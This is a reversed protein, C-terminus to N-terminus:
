ALVPETGLFSEMDALRDHVAEETSRPIPQFLKHSTRGSRRSFSWTGIAVGGVMISARAEGIQNFLLAYHDDAVYRHRTTFYGKLSPDEHALLAVHSPEVSKSAVLGDVSDASAFLEDAIGDVRVSVLDSGLREIARRVVTPGLGSWWAIDGVAVPGFRRIHHLVLQERALEVEPENAKFEVTPCFQETLAFARHEHHLSPSLDVHVLEGAEWLWKISLRALAVDRARGSPAAALQLDRYPVPGSAVHSRVRASFARLSRESASLARLKARCPSLRQHLTARHATTALPLPLIHLTQRMCRIRVLQREAVLLARLHAAEFSPIRSRLAVWPSSQRAAHLGFTTDAVAAISALAESGGLLGHRSLRYDREQASTLRVPTTASRAM